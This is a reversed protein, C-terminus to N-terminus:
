ASETEHARNQPEREEPEGTNSAPCSGIPRLMEEARATPEVLVPKLLEDPADALHDVPRLLASAQREAALRQKV